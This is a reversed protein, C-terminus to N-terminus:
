KLIVCVFFSFEWWKLNMYLLDHNLLFKQLISISNESNYSKIYILIGEVFCQISLCQVTHIGIYAAHTLNTSKYICIHLHFTVMPFDLCVQIQVVAGHRRNGPPWLTWKSKKPLVRLWNFSRDHYGMLLISVFVHIWNKKIRAAVVFKPHKVYLTTNSRKDLM